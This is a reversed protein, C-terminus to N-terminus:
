GKLVEDLVRGLEQRNYPKPLVAKFGYARCNALVPDDCYGSSVVAKVQPDLALLAKVAERGGMGGRVTLDMIVVAYRSGSRQRNYYATVAQAGDAVSEARYGLEELMEVALERILRDDDMVLVDGEGKAELAPGTAELAAQRLQAPLTVTFTTGKGPLSEFTIGGGHKKIISYCSTLGLGSGQKTTFYPDFVQARISEPIGTGTDSVSFSLLEEGERSRARGSRITIVGGEPMAQTANIVLNHVVQSLQGEDAALALQEPSLEFDCRVNSGLSGFQAAERLLANLDVARKVPDGGRAFTLLQQTLDRARLVGKEGDKLRSLVLDPDHAASRALSIYGLIISLINNFDHAIGGALVGLSELKQTKLLEERAHRQETIDEVVGVYGAVSGDKGRFPQALARVWVPAGARLFRCEHQFTGGQGSIELWKVTTSERDEPHLAASWGSGMLQGAKLGTLEQLRPNAYVCRGRDDSMFIGVPAAACLTRFRRESLRLEAEAEAREAVEHRLAQNALTLERTREMVRSELEQNARQLKEESERRSTIDIHQIVANTITGQPDRIAFITVDLIVRSTQALALTKLTSSDYVIEFRATEGDRFVREVQPLLGQERVINDKLINYTGVVEAETINLLRTCARNIRILTGQSDSIWIPNPSQDIISDLLSCSGASPKAQCLWADDCSTPNAKGQDRDEM